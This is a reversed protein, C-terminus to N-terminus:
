SDDDGYISALALVTACPWDDAEWQDEYGDRDTLCVLCRPREVSGFKGVPDPSHAALIERKAAVERLMQDRHKQPLRAVTAFHEDAGLGSKLRAVPDDTMAAMGPASM